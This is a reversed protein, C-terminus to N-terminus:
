LLARYQKVKDTHLKLWIPDRFEEIEAVMLNQHINQDLRSRLKGAKLGALLSMMWVFALSKQASRERAM